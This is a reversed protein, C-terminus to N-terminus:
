WATGSRPNRLLLDHRDQHGSPARPSPLSCPAHGADLEAGAVNQSQEAVHRSSVSGVTSAGRWGGGYRAGRVPAAGLYDLGVAVRVHADTPCIGNAPDFGVWGLGAVYAEAWAHGADQAACATPGTSIAASMARRFASSRAGGRHLYPHPGPLRRAQAAFAEAATTRPQTPDTDFAIDEHMRAMLAHLITLTDDGGGAASAPSIARDAADAATLPTERLYLSPPFREIAGRVVGRTDQTEVEGEVRM